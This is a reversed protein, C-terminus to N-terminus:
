SFHESIFKKINEVVAEDRYGSGYIFQADEICELAEQLIARVEALVSDSSLHRVYLIDNDNIRDASWTVEHLENFDESDCEEGIQLYIQEPVNKM